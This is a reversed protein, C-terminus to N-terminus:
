IANQAERTEGFRSSHIAVPIGKLQVDQGTQVVDLALAWRTREDNDRM